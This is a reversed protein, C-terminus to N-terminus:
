LSLLLLVCKRIRICCFYLEFYTTEIKATNITKLIRRAVLDKQIYVCACVVTLERRRKAVLRYM